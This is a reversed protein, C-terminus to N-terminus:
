PIRAVVEVRRNLQKGTATTNTSVPALPGVGYAEVRDPVVGHDTTLIRVVEKAREGSLEMNHHLSGTMDTHGVIYVKLQPMNGLLSAIEAVLPLSWAQVTAKDTDFLIDSLAVKGYQEIQQRMWAADVSIKDTDVGVEEIVDVLVVKQETTYQSGAVVVHVKTGKNNLTAALYFSGGSTASGHLLVIGSGTPVPNKDYHVGLFKRSGVEPSTAKEEIGQALMIASAKKLAQEYNLYIDRISVTGSITYYLRTRKGRVESWEAIQKYGTVPGTAIHYEMHNQEECYALVSGPYRTIVPHDKCGPADQTWAPLAILLAWVLIFTSRM